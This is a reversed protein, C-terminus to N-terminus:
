RRDFLTNDKALFGLDAERYQEETRCWGNAYTIVMPMAHSHGDCFAVNAFGSHRFHTSPNALMGYYEWIPPECFSYEILKGECDLFACDALLITESPNAIQGERAPICMDPWGLPSGGVYYANYGYGGTGQEFQGTSTADPAFSSCRKVDANKLYEWLPGRTPDFPEDTSDRAGHWRMLNDPTQAPVFGGDYDQVYMIMALALQHVNSLCSTQRAKERAQAFVPFLLAALIGIIAIVVLLEILTFGRQRGMEAEKSSARASLPPCRFRGPRRVIALAFIAIAVRVM